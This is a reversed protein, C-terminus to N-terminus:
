WQNTCCCLIPQERQWGRSINGLHFQGDKSGNYPCQHVAATWGPDKGQDTEALESGKIVSYTFNQNKVETHMVKRSSSGKMAPFDEQKKEEQKRVFCRGPSWWLFHTSSKSPGRPSAGVVQAKGIIKRRLLQTQQLPLSATWFHLSRPPDRPVQHVIPAEEGYCSGRGPSHM